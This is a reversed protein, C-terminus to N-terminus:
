GMLWRPESREEIMQLEWRYGGAWVIANDGSEILQFIYYDPNRAGFANIIVGDARYLNITKETSDVVLYSGDTVEINVNIVTSGIRIYPNTVPGSINIIFNCGLPNPNIIETESILDKGYDYAYDYGVLNTDENLEYDKIGTEFEAQDDEIESYSSRSIIHYWTEEERVFSVDKKIIGVDYQWKTNASSVIYGYTFWDNFYIKGAKGDYIDVEIVNNLADIAEDRKEVTDAIVFLTLDKTAVPKNFGAVRSGRRRDRTAYAWSYDLLPEINIAYPLETLTIRNGRNNEYVVTYNNYQAM